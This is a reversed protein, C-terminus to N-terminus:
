QAPNLPDGGDHKIQISRMRGVRVPSPVHPKMYNPL